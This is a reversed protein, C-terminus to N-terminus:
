DESDYMDIFKAIVPKNLFSRVPKLTKDKLVKLFTNDFKLAAKALNVQVYEPKIEYYRYGRRNTSISTFKEPVRTSHDSKNHCDTIKYRDNKDNLSFGIVSDNSTIPHNFNYLICQFGNKSYSRFYSSSRTICWNTM